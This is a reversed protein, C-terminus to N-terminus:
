LQYNAVRIATGGIVHKAFLAKDGGALSLRHLGFRDRTLTIYPTKQHLSIMTQLRRTEGRLCSARCGIGRGRPFMCPFAREVTTLGPAAWVSKKQESQAAFRPAPLPWFDSIWAPFVDRLRVRETDEELRVSRRDTVPPPFIPCVPEIKKFYCYCCIMFLNCFMEWGKYNTKKSEIESLLFVPNKLFDRGKENGDYMRTSPWLFLLCPWLILVLATCLGRPLPDMQVRRIRAIQDAAIHSQRNRPITIVVQVTKKKTVRM